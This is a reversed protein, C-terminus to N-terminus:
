LIFAFDTKLDNSVGHDLNCFPSALVGHFGRAFPRRHQLRRVLYRFRDCGSIEVLVSDSLM